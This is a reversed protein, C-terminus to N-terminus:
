DDDLSFLCLQVIVVFLLCCCCSRVVVTLRLVSGLLCSWCEITMCVVFDIGILLLFCCAVVIVVVIVDVVLM